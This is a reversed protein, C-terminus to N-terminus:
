KRGDAQLRYNVVDSFDRGSIDFKFASSQGPDIDYSNVYSAGCGVARGSADYLTGVVNVSTVKFSNENRVMGLISYYGNSKIGGTADLIPLSIVSASTTWYHVAEFEYTAWNSPTEDVALHFCTKDTPPLDDLAAFTYDTGVLRHSSDFLDVSIKVLWLTQNTHNAVEGVINLNGNAMYSSHSSLIEVPAGPKPTITPTPEGGQKVIPLYLTTTDQALGPYSM